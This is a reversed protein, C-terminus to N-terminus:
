EQNVDEDDVNEVCRVATRTVSRGDTTYIFSPFHDESKKLVATQETYFSLTRLTFYKKDPFTIASKFDEMTAIEKGNVRDIFTQTPFNYVHGPSCTRNAAAFVESHCKRSLKSRLSPKHFTTGCVYAFETIQTRDIPITPVLCDVVKRDRLVRVPILDDMFIYRLDSSQTVREKDLELIVDGERLPHLEDKGSLSTCHLPVRDVVLQQDHSYQAALASVTHDPLSEWFADAHSVSKVDFDQFRINGLQNSKWLEFVDAIRSAPLYYNQGDDHDLWVKQLGAVKGDGYTIVGSERKSLSSTLLVTEHHFPMYFSDDGGYTRHSLLEVYTRVVNRQEFNNLFYVDDGEKLRRESLCIPKLEPSHPLGAPNYEVLILDAAEHMFIVHARVEIGVPLTIKIQDFYSTSGRHTVVLGHALLLGTKIVDGPEYGDVQVSRSIHLSVIGYFIENVKEDFLNQPLATKIGQAANRCMASGVQILCQNSAASPPTSTKNEVWGGGELPDRRMELPSDFYMPPLYAATHVAKRDIIQKHITSIYQGGQGLTQLVRLLSEM